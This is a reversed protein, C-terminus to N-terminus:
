KKVTLSISRKKAHIAVKILCFATIFGHRLILEKTQVANSGGDM